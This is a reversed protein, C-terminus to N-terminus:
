TSELFRGNKRCQTLQGKNPVRFVPQYRQDKMLAHQQERCPQQGTANLDHLRSMKQAVYQGGRPNAPSDGQDTSVHVVDLSLSRGVPYLRMM